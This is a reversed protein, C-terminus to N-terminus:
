EYYEIEREIVLDIEYENGSNEYKYIWNGNSDYKYEYITNILTKGYLANLETINGYKDYKYNKILRDGKVIDIEKEYEIEDNDYYLYSVKKILDKNSNFSLVEDVRMKNDLVKVSYEKLKGDFMYVYEEFKRNNELYKYKIKKYLTDKLFVNFEVKNDNDDYLFQKKNFLKETSDIYEYSKTGILKGKNNYTNKSIQSILGDDHFDVVEVVNKNINYKRKEHKNFYYNLVKSNLEIIFGEKDYKTEIDYELYGNSVFHEENKKKEFEEKEIEGFKEVARFTLQKVSKVNGKINDRKLDNLNINSQSVITGYVFFSILTFLKLYTKKM